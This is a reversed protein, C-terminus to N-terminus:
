RRPTDLTRRYFRLPYDFLRFRNKYRASFIIYLSNASLFASSSAFIFSSVSLIVARSFLLLSDSVSADTSFGVSFRVSFSTSFSVAALVLLSQVAEAAIEAITVTQVIPTAANM